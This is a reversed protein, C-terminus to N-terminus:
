KFDAVCCAVTGGAASRRTVLTTSTLESGGLTESALTGSAATTTFGGSSLKAKTGVATISQTSTSFSLHQVAQALLWPYFETVTFYIIHNSAEVTNVFGTVTTGSTLEARMATKSSDTTTGTVNVGTVEIISNNKIVATPLSFTGSTVNNLTISGRQIIKIGSARYAM